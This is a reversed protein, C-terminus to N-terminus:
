LDPAGPRPKPRGLAELAVPDDPEHKILKEAAAHARDDRGIATYALITVQLLERNTIGTPRAREVWALATRPRRANLEARALRGAAQAYLTLLSKEEKDFYRAGAERANALARAVCAVADDPRDASLYVRALRQAVAPDLPFLAAGDELMAIAEDTRKDVLLAASHNLFENPRVLENIMTLKLVAAPVRPWFLVALLAAVVAAGLPMEYRRARIHELAYPVVAGAFVCLLALFPLKFRGSVFVVIISAAFALAFVYLPVLRRWRRATLIVGLFGLTYILAPGVAITRLAPVYRRVFYYDANDPADWANFFIRTKRALIRPLFGPEEALRARLLGSWTAEGEAVQRSAEDFGRPNCFVGFAGPANGLYFNVPGNTTLTWRKHLLGNRVIPASVPLILGLAFLGALMIPRRRPPRLAPAAILAGLAAAPLLMSGRGVCALGLLLGAALISRFGGRKKVAPESTRSILIVAGLCLAPLVVDGVLVPELAIQSANLAMLLGAALGGWWGFLRRALAAVCLAAAIGFAANMVMGAAVGPHRSIAYTSALLYPYLPAYYFPRDRQRSLLDGDAIQEAWEHYTWADSGRRPERYYPLRAMVQTFIVCRAAVAVTLVILFLLRLRPGPPRATDDSSPAPAQAAEGPPSAAARAPTADDPQPATQSM